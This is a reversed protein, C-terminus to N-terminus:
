IWSFLCSYRVAFLFIILHFLVQVYWQHLRPLPLLLSGFSARPFPMLSRLAVEGVSESIRVQKWLLQGLGFTGVGYRRLRLLGILVILLLIIDTFLTVITNPKNSETDHLVCREEAPM